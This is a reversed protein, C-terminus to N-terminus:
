TAVEHENNRSRRRQPSLGVRQRADLQTGLHGIGWFTKAIDLGITTIQM